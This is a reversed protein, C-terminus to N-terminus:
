HSAPPATCLSMCLLLFVWLSSCGCLPAPSLLPLGTGQLEQWHLLCCPATLRACM